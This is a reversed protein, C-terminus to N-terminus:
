DQVYNVFFYIIMFVSAGIKDNRLLLKVSWIFIVVAWLSCISSAEAELESVAKWLKKALVNSINYNLPYPNRAGSVIFKVLM